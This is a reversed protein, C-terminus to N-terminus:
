YNEKKRWWADADDTNDQQMRDREHSGLAITPMTTAVPAPEAPPSPPPEGPEAMISGIGYYPGRETQKYPDSPSSNVLNALHDMLVPNQAPQGNGGQEADYRKDSSANRAALVERMYPSLAFGGRQFM